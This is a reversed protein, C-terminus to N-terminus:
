HPVYYITKIIYKMDFSDYQKINKHFDFENDRNVKFQRHGGSVM